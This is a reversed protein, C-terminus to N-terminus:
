SIKHILKHLRLGDMQRDLQRHGKRCVMTKTMTVEQTACINVYKGWLHVDLLKHVQRRNQMLKILTYRRTKKKIFTHMFILDIHPSCYFHLQDCMQLTAPVNTWLCIDTIHFTHIGTTMSVNKVGNLEYSTSISVCNDWIQVPLLQCIRCKLPMHITPVYISIAYYIFNCNM